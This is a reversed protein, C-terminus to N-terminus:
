RGGGGRHPKFAEKSLGLHRMKNYLTRPDVGSHEATRGIHGRHRELLASLYRREFEEILNSRGEALPQELWEELWPEWSWPTPDIQPPEDSPVAHRAIEEPLDDLTVQPGETLLVAREIVNILERINGPWDHAELAMVAEPAIGRVDSRGLKRRFIEVQEAVMVPIDLRRERLPPLALTVVALRYYLDSRFGQDRLAAALDRHTAAVIRVDIEIPREGGVRQITRDQLARLLKVQLPPPMDGIEDLFLTGHHAMEFYGRRTHHAGTFAGKEHGFLESELLGEPVAGCNIAVFPGEARPSARHISRALWEKGSGTEGLILLSTDSAAVRSALALLRAFAPSQTPQPPLTPTVM